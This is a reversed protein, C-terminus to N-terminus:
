IEPTKRGRGDAGGAGEGTSGAGRDAGGGATLSEPQEAAGDTLEEAAQKIEELEPTELLEDLIGGGADEKREIEAREEPTKAKEKEAAEAMKEAREKAEDGIHWMQENNYAMKAAAIQDEYSHFMELKREIEELTECKMEKLNEKQNEFFSVKNACEQQRQLKQRTSKLGNDRGFCGGNRLNGLNISTGMM